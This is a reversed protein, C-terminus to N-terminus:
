APTSKRDVVMATANAIAVVLLGICLSLHPTGITFRLLILAVVLAILCDEDLGGSGGADTGRLRPLRLVARGPARMRLVRRWERESDLITLAVFGLAAAIGILVFGLVGEPM